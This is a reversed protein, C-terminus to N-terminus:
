RRIGLVCGFDSYSSRRDRYSSHTPFKPRPAAAMFHRVTAIPILPQIMIGQERASVALIGQFTHLLQHLLIPLLFLAFIVRIEGFLSECPGRDKYFLQISSEFFHNGVRHLSACRQRQQFASSAQKRAADKEALRLIRIVINKSPTGPEIKLVWLIM